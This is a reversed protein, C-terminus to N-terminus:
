KKKKKMNTYMYFLWQWNCNCVWNCNIFIIIIIKQLRHAFFPLTDYFHKSHASNRGEGNKMREADPVQMLYSFTANDCTTIPLKRKNKPGNACDRFAAILKTMYTQRDARAGVHFLKAGV